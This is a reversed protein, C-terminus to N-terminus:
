RVSIHVHDYHNATASGRDSMGRWGDGSRQTTWIKQAYIVEIVGLQGANARVWNAVDWGAEGSVMVDIARGSSHYSGGGSRYGGFSTLSPFANCVARLTQTANDTLGSEAGSARSCASTDIGSNAGSSGSESESAREPEVVPEPEEDSLYAAKIWGAEGSLRVQQWGDVTEDTATVEAGAALSTFAEHSTDPGTRVNVGATTWLSGISEGLVSFDEAPAPAPTPAVSVTPTPEPTPTPSPAVTDPSPTPSATAAPPTTSPVVSPSPVSSASASPAPSPGATPVDVVPERTRERSVGLDVQAQHM